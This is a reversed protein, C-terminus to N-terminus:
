FDSLVEGVLPKRDTPITRKRVWAMTNLKPEKCFIQFLFILINLDIRQSLLLFYEYLKYHPHWLPTCQKSISSSSLLWLHIRWTIRLTHFWTEVSYVPFKKHPASHTIDFQRTPLFLVLNHIFPFLSSLKMMSLEHHRHNITVLLHTELATRTYQFTERNSLLLWKM